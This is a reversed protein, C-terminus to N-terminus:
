ATSRARIRRRVLLLLLVGAAALIVHGVTIAPAAPAPRTASTSRSVVPRRNANCAENFARRERRQQRNFQLRERRQDQNFERKEQPSPDTQRFLRREDRQQRNFARKEQRQLRNFETRDEASCPTVPPYQQAVAQGSGALVVCAMMVIVLLKRVM